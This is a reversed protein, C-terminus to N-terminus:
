SLVKVPFLLCDTLAKALAPATIEWHGPKWFPSGACVQSATAPWFKGWSNPGGLVITGNPQAYAYTCALWHGGGRPDALNISTIPGSAPDWDMFAGDVFLGVGAAAKAALGMLIQWAFTPDQEDIRYEGTLLRLGSRELSLLDPELNVSPRGLPLGALDDPGTVDSYRGDPTPSNIMKTIGYQRLVTLLDIPMVGSDSLGQSADTRRLIRALKYILDPSPVFLEGEPLVIGNANMTTFVIQATGHGGCSGTRGQDFLPAESDVLSAETVTAPGTLMLHAPKQYRHADADPIYGFFRGTFAKAIAEHAATRYIM